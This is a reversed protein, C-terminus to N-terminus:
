SVDLKPLYGSYASLAGETWGESSGKILQYITPCVKSLSLSEITTFTKLTIHPTATTNTEKKHYIVSSISSGM